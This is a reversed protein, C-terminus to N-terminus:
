LIVNRFMFWVFMGFRHCSGRVVTTRGTSKVGGFSAVEGANAM